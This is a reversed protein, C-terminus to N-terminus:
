KVLQGDKRDVWEPLLTIKKNIDEDELLPIFVQKNRGYRDVFTLMLKRDHFYVMGSISKEKIWLDLNHFCDGGPFQTITFDTMSWQIYEDPVDNCWAFLALADDPVDLHRTVHGFTPKSPRELLWVFIVVAIAVALEILYIM